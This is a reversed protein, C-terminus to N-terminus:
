GYEMQGSHIVNDNEDVITLAPKTKSDTIRLGYEEGEYGVLGANISLTNNNQKSVSSKITFPPGPNLTVTSGATITIKGKRIDNSFDAHQRFVAEEQGSYELQGYVIHYQGAPLRIEGEFDVQQTATDSLLQALLRRNKSIKLAGMEPKALQMKLTQGDPSPALSYYCVDDATPMDAVFWEKSFRFYKGLPIMEGPGSRRTSVKSDHDILIADCIWTWNDESPEYLTCFQRDYDGDILVTKYIHDGLRIKGKMCHTPQISVLRGNEDSMLYFAASSVDKGTLQTKGFDLYTETYDKSYKHKKPNGLLPKEDSLRNDLNTDVWIRFTGDPSKQTIACVKNKGISLSFYQLTSDSPTITGPLDSLADPRKATGMAYVTCYSSLESRQKLTAPKLHAIGEQRPTTLYRYGVVGLVATILLVLLLIAIKKIM